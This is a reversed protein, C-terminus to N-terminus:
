KYRSYRDKSGHLKEQFVRAFWARLNTAPPYPCTKHTSRFIAEVRERKSYKLEGAMRVALPLLDGLASSNFYHGPSWDPLLNM